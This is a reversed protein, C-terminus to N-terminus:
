IGGETSSHPDHHPTRASMRGWSRGVEWLLMWTEMTSSCVRHGVRTGLMAERQSEQVMEWSEFGMWHRPEALFPFLRVCGVRVAGPPIELASSVAVLSLPSLLSVM